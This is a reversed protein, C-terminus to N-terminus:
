TELFELVFLNEKIECLVKTMSLEAIPCHTPRFLAYDMGANQGTERDHGNMRMRNHVRPTKSHQPIDQLHFEFATTHASHYDEGAM